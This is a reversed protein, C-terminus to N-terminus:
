EGGAASCLRVPADSSHIPVEVLHWRTSKWLLNSRVAQAARRPMDELGLESVRCEGIRTCWQLCWM